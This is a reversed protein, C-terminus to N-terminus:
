GTPGYRGQWLDESILAETVAYKTHVTQSYFLANFDEYQQGQLKHIVRSVLDGNGHTIILIDMLRTTTKSLHVLNGVDYTPDVLYCQHIHSPLQHYMRGDNTKCTKGCTPNNCQYMMSVAYTTTGDLDIIPTICGHSRYDYITSILDGTACKACTLNVKNSYMEEWRLLYLKRGELVECHQNPKEMKDLPPVKFCATGPPFM